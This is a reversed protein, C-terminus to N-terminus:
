ELKVIRDAYIANTVGNPLIELAALRGGYAKGIGVDICALRGEARSLIQGTARPDILFTPTHGVVLREIGWAACLMDLEQRLEEKSKRLAIRYWHPGDEAMAPSRSELEFYPNLRIMERRIRENLEEIEWATYRPHLGGHVFLTKDVILLSSRNALWKGVMGTPAMARRFELWGLPEEQMRNMDLMAAGNQSSIELDQAKIEHLSARLAEQDMASRPAFDQYEQVTTYSHIHHMSM